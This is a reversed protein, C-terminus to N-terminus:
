PQYILIQTAYPAGSMRFTDMLLSELSETESVPAAIKFDVGIYEVDGDIGTIEEVKITSLRDALAKELNGLYQESATEKSQSEHLRAYLYLYNVPDKEPEKESEIPEALDQDVPTQELPKQDPQPSDCGTLLAVVLLLRAIL